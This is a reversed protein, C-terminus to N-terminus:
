GDEQRDRADTVNHFICRLCPLEQEAKLLEGCIHIWRLQGDGSIIHLESMFVRSRSLPKRTRKGLGRETQYKLKIAASLVSKM